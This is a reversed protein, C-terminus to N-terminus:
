KIQNSIFAPIQDALDLWDTQFLSITRICKVPNEPYSSDPRSKQFWSSHDIRRSFALPELATFQIKWIKPILIFPEISTNYSFSFESKYCKIKMFFFIELLIIIMGVSM